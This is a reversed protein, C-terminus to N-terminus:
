RAWGWGCCLLACFQLNSFAILLLGCRGRIVSGVISVMWALQGELISLQQKAPGDLSSLTTAQLIVCQLMTHLMHCLPRLIAKVAAYITHQSASYCHGLSVCMGFSFCITCCTSCHECFSQSLLAFPRSHLLTVTGSFHIGAHWLCLSKM